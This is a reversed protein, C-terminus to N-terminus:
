EWLDGSEFLTSGTCYYLSYYKVVLGRGGEVGAVGVVMLGFDPHSAVGLMGPNIGILQVDNDHDDDGGGDDDDGGGDPAYYM